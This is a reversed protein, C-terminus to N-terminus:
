QHMMEGELSKLQNLAGKATAIEKQLQALAEKRESLQKELMEIMLERAQHEWFKIAEKMM